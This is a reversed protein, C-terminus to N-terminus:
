LLEVQAGIKMTAVGPNQCLSAQGPGACMTENYQERALDTAAADIESSLM